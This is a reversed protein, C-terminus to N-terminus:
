ISLSWAAVDPDLAKWVFPMGQSLGEEGFGRTKVVDSRALMAEKFNENADRTAVNMRALMLPDDFMHVITRNSGAFLPRAFNATVGILGLAKELPPLYPVIDTIGKETPLPQYFATPHFPLLGSGTILNYLNVAPNSFSGLRAIETLLTVLDSTTSLTSPFDIVQAPGNAESVWAQLEHDSKIAADDVYYSSVFASM